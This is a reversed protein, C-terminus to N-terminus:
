LSGRKQISFGSIVQPKNKDFIQFDEKKLNGVSHGQSDRVVVPILVANAEVVIKPAQPQPSTENTQQAYLHASVLLVVWVFRAVSPLPRSAQKM